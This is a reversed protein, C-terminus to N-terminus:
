GERAKKKVMRTSAKMDPAMPGHSSETVMNSTMSGNVRTTHEMQMRTLEWVKRRITSGSDKMSIAMLTFLSEKDTPRITRGNAKTDAAMQGCSPALVTVSATWGSDLTPPAM